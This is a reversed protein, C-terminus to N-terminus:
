HEDKSAANLDKCVLSVREALDLGTLHSFIKIKLEKPLSLFPNGDNTTPSVSM